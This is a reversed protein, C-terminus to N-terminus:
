ARASGLRAYPKTKATKMTTTLTMARSKSLQVAGEDVAKLRTVHGMKRGPRADEGKAMFIFRAPNPWRLGPM